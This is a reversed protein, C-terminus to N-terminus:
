RVARNAATITSTSTQSGAPPAPPWGCRSSWSSPVVRVMARTASRAIDAHYSIVLGVVVTAVGILAAAGMMTPVTRVVLALAMVVALTRLLKGTEPDLAETISSGAWWGTSPLCIWRSSEM